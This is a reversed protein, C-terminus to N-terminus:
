AEMKIEIAHLECMWGITEGVIGTANIELTQDTDNVQFVPAPLTALAGQKIDPCVAEIVTLTQVGANNFLGFQRKFIAMSSDTLGANKAFITATICYSKGHKTLFTRFDERVATVFNVPYPWTGLGSGAGVPETSALLITSVAEVTRGILRTHTTQSSGQERTAEAAGAWGIVSQGDVSAHPMLGHIATFSPGNNNGHPIVRMNSPSFKPIDSDAITVEFNTAAIATVEGYYYDSHTFDNSMSVKDGVAIIGEYYDTTAMTIVNGSIANDFGTNRISNGTGLRVESSGGLSTDVCSNGFNVGAGATVLSNNGFNRSQGTTVSERAPCVGGSTLNGNETVDSLTTVNVWAGKIQKYIFEKGTGSSMYGVLVHNVGNVLIINDSFSADNHGQITVYQGDYLGPQLICYALAGTFDILIFDTDPVIDRNTPSISSYSKFSQGPRFVHGGAEGGGTMKMIASQDSASAIEGANGITLELQALTDVRPIIEGVLSGDNAVRFSEVFDVGNSVYQVYAYGAVDNVLVPSDGWTTANLLAFQVQTYSNIKGEHSSLLAAEITAGDNLPASAIFDAM